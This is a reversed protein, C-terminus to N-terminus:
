TFQPVSHRKTGWLVERVIFHYLSKFVSCKSDNLLHVVASKPSDEGMELGM